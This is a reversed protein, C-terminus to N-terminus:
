PATLERIRREVEEDNAVSAFRGLYRRAEEPLDLEYQCLDAAFLHVYALSPHTASLDSVVELAAAAGKRRYTLVATLFRVAPDDGDVAEARSIMQSAPGLDGEELLDTAARVLDNLSWVKAYLVQTQNLFEFPIHRREYGDRSIEVQHTGRSVDPLVFRGSLDTTPGPQGDIVITAGSVPQNANDYVMGYLFAFEFDYPDGPEVTECACILLIVFVGALRTGIRRLRM